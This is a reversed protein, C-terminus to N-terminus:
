ALPKCDHVMEYVFTLLESIANCFEAGSYSKNYVGSQYLISIDQNSEKFNLVHQGGDFFILRAHNFDSKAYVLNSLLAFHEKSKILFKSLNDTTFHFNMRVFIALLKLIPVDHIQLSHRRVIVNPYYQEQLDDLVHVVDRVSMTKVRQQISSKITLKEDQYWEYDTIDMVDLHCQTYLVNIFQKRAEITISYEFINHCYFKAMFGDYNAENGYFHHFIQKTTDYDLVAVINDFGFKNSNVNEDVHAGLVNLIRFLHGPDIRDLDEIILTCKKGHEQIKAITAKIASTFQDQEFIGGKMESFRDFFKDIAYKDDIKQFLRFPTLIAKTLPLADSLFECEQILTDYDFITKAVEKWDVEKFYPQKSLEVLIDRKIYEFVDENSAVSYNIPHLVIFLADDDHLRMYERLFYTKGDGFKASFITRPNNELHREFRKLESTIDITTMRQTDISIFM